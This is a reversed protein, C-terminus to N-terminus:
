QAEERSGELRVEGGLTQGSAKCRRSSRWLGLSRWGAKIHKAILETHSSLIIRVEDPFTAVALKKKLLDLKHEPVSIQYSAM